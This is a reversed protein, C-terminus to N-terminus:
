YRKWSSPCYIEKRIGNIYNVVPNEFLCGSFSDENLKHTDNCVKDFLYKKRGREPPFYTFIKKELFRKKIYKLPPLFDADGSILYLNDFKNEYADAILNVSINVDTMKEEHKIYPEPENCDCIILKEKNCIECIDDSSKEICDCIFYKEKNCKRCKITNANFRGYFIDVTDLTKVANLFARQRKIKAITKRKIKEDLEDDKDKPLTVKTTFYKIYELKVKPFPNIIKLCLKELNLWYLDQRDIDKLGYYLNYGDIYFAARVNKM